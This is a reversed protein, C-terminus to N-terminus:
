DQKLKHVYFFMLKELEPDFSLLSYDDSLKAAEAEAKDLADRYLASADELGQHHSAELSYAENIDLNLHALSNDGPVSWEGSNLNFEYCQVFKHGHELVFKLTEILYDVENEALAYHLNLRVWGPKVGTYGVNTIMCRYFDSVQQSINMLFHGYPGACSCGARTQIGFLDNLLRTVLKPHLLRDRHRVNFPIIPIKKEARTEGLFVIREDGEFAAMFKQYYYHEIDNIVQQGVKDKLQFALAVRMAQMIGPTGPKERTEIDKVYEEKVPSVYDVTGGSPVTPALGKPYIDENFVIIGSSGPGGLFKHPSLYIADFYSQEDRRMNIEVYPACAAFDFCALGGHRHMIRAVEYVNTLLGSVNSAASFSGIKLRNKYAPDSVMQELVELDLEAHMNMPVEVTQCLTNRWMIENSHHEYPGVFVVPKSEHMYNHLEQNCDVGEPNRILCSKLIDDVRRATAPPWYVGLIQLLKVIGGTTGSETFIIKGKPGANVAKKISIEAEKLLHSMSRGTFGDETHTNAYYKLIENLYNEISLLARGSATYDAYVLPREGFPTHFISNRGIIDRRLWDLSAIHQQILNKQM